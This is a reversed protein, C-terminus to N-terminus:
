GSNAKKVSMLHTIRLEHLTSDLFAQKTDSIGDKTKQDLLNLLDVFHKAVSLQINSKGTVLNPIIGLAVMAQTSLMTVLESFNAPSIQDPQPKVDLKKVPTGDKTKSEDVNM